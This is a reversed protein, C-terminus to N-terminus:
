QQRKKKRYAAFFGAAAALIVAAAAACIGLLMSSGSTIRDSAFTLTYEVEHPVSMATTDAIVTMPEDFALVPIEFVSNGDENVPLYKEGGVIMYDYNSSSWEIRAYARSDKVILIAPSTITARGTGGELEVEIQYEGDKKDVSVAQAAAGDEAQCIMGGVAPCFLGFVFVTLLACLWSLVRKKM